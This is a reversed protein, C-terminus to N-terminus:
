LNSLFISYTESSQYTIEKLADDATTVSRDEPDAVDAMRVGDLLRREVDHGEFQVKELM